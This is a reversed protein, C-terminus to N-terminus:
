KLEDRLSYQNIKYGVTNGKEDVAEDDIFDEMDWVPKKPLDLRNKVVYFRRRTAPVPRFVPFVVRTQLIIRFKEEECDIIATLIM